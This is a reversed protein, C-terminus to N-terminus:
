HASGGQFQALLHDFYVEGIWHNLNSGVFLSVAAFLDYCTKRNANQLSSLYLENRRKRLVVLLVDVANSISIQVFYVDTEVFREPAISLPIDIKDGFGLVVSVGNGEDGRFLVLM